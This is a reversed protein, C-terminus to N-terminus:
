DATGRIRERAAAVLELYNPDFLEVLERELLACLANLAIVEAADITAAHLADENTARSLWEFLVLAEDRTLRVVVADDRDAL